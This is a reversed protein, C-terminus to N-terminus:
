RGGPAAVCGGAAQVMALDLIATPGPRLPVAAFATQTAIANWDVIVDAKVQTASSLCACIILGTLRRLNTM